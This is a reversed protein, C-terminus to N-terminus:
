GGASFGGSIRWVDWGAQNPIVPEFRAAGRDATQIIWGKDLFRDFVSRVAETGARKGDKSIPLGLPRYIPGWADNLASPSATFAFGSDGTKRACLAAYLKEDTDDKRPIAMRLADTQDELLGTAPNRVLTRLTKEGPANGKALGGLYVQGAQRARAPQGMAKLINKAEDPDAEWAALAWRGNNVLSGGGRIANRADSLGAINAGKTMHHLVMVAAGTDTALKGLLGTMLAAGGRNDKDIDVGAFASLPDIIVLRLDEIAALQNCLQGWFPTAVPGAPSDTIIPRSGGANAMPVVFMRHPGHERHGDKDLNAIRRHVEAADDEATLFVVAGRALVPQGFFTPGLWRETVACRIPPAACAIDLALKLMMMSKGTDGVTAFVGATSAPILNEVLWVRDPAPGKFRDLRWEEISFGDDVARPSFVPSVPVIPSHKREDLRVLADFERNVRAEDWDEPSEFKYIQGHMYARAEELSKRNARADAIEKGAIKTFVDHRSSGSKGGTQVFMDRLADVNNEPFLPVVTNFDLMPDATTTLAPAPVSPLSICSTSSRVMRVPKPAKKRHWSGPLRVVQAAQKFSQDGGFRLALDERIRCIEDVKDAGDSLCWYAHLKPSGDDATGGSEVVMSAPGILDEVRELNAAPAGKDFDILIAPLSEVDEKHTGGPRVIGPLFFAAREEVACYALFDEVGAAFAPGLTVHHNTPHRDDRPEPVARFHVCGTADSGFLKTLFDVAQRAEDSLPQPAVFFPLGQSLVSM